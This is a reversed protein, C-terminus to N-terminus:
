PDAKELTFYFISGQGPASEVWIEGGHREVIRKCIALGIGSGPIAGTPDHRQFLTFLREFQRSEIGIGNDAVSFVIKDGVEKAAVKIVPRRETSQYKLANGVLNQFLSVLQVRDARVLPLPGAEVVAECEQMAMELNVMADNLAVASNIPEPRQGSTTIRSFALLDRIMTTLRAVGDTIFGIFAEADGDLKGTYRRSLLQAFNGINRLPEQLDHSIVYAFRELEENSRALELTREALAKEAEVRSHIDLAAVLCLPGYHADEGEMPSTQLIVPLSGEVPSKLSLEARTREGQFARALHREFVPRGEPEIFSLFHKGHLLEGPTSLLEAGKLNIERLIGSADLLFYGVPSNNFLDTYRRLATQLGHQADCLEVKKAQLRERCFEVNTLAKIFADGTEREITERNEYERLRSRLCALEAELEHRSKPATADVPCGM